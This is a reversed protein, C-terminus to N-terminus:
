FHEINNFAPGAVAPVIGEALNRRRRRILFVSVGVIIVVVVVVVISVLIYYYVFFGSIEQQTVGITINAPLSSTIGM